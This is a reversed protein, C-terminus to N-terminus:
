DIRQILNATGGHTDQDPYIPSPIKVPPKLTVAIPYWKAFSLGSSNTGAVKPM